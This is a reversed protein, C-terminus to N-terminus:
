KPVDTGKSHIYDCRYFLKPLCKDLCGRIRQLIFM